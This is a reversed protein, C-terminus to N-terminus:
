LILGNKIYFCDGGNEACPIPLSYGRQVVEEACERFLHTATQGHQPFFVRPTLKDLVYYNGTRVSEPTGLSCGLVPLFVLDPTKGTGALFDIEDTFSAQLGSDEGNSHDGAHFIVLGDVEVLFGVGADTSAITRVRLDGITTDTRPPTYEYRGSSDPRHGLIYTIHPIQEKWSFITSDYHDGHEHSSFVVVSLDKIEFPNICGNALAPADPMTATQTYDFVLFHNATKIGWGSCGLYWVAAENEDLRQGLLVPPGYREEIGSPDAGEAKLVDAVSKNAYRNAYYLPSYGAKDLADVLAGGELLVSALSSLGRIACWHLPSRGYRSESRNLDANAEILIVAKDIMGREAALNLATEGEGLDSNVDAGSEILLRLQEFTGAGVAWEIPATSSDTLSNLVAGHEVLMQMIEIPVWRFSAHALASNGYNDVTNVDAGAELLLRVSGVKGLHVASSLATKGENNEASIDAGRDLLFQLLEEHGGTAARHLATTGFDTKENVDVGRDLLFEVFVKNGSWASALLPTNGSSSRVNISAGNDLLFKAIDLNGSWCSALFPTAGNNDSEEVVAGNAVLFKVVELHGRSAACNLASSNDGDGARVDAGSAILFEVAELHGNLAALHLPLSGQEDAANIQNPNATVISQLRSIDGAGAAEHVEAALLSTGVALLGFVTIIQKIM